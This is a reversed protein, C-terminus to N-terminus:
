SLHHQHYQIVNAINTNSIITINNIHHSIRELIISIINTIQNSNAINTISIINTLSTGIKYHM